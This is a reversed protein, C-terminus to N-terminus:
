SLAGGRRRVKGLNVPRNSKRGDSVAPVGAGKGAAPETASLIRHWTEAGAMDGEDLLRDAREAAELMADDRHGLSALERRMRLMVRQDALVSHTPGLQLV